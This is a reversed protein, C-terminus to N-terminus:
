RFDKKRVKILRKRKKNQDEDKSVVILVTILRFFVRYFKSIFYNDVSINSM